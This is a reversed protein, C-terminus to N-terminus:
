APKKSETCFTRRLKQSVLLWGTVYQFVCCFIVGVWFWAGDFSRYTLNIVVVGFFVLLWFYSESTERYDYEKGEPSYKKIVYTGADAAVLGAIFGSLFVAGLTCGIQLKDM